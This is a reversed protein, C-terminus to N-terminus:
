VGSSLGHSVVPHRDVSKESVQESVQVSSAYKWIQKSVKDLAQQSEVSLESSVRDVENRGDDTLHIARSYGRSETNLFRGDQQACIWAVHSELRGYARNKLEPYQDRVHVILPEIMESLLAVRGERECERASYLFARSVARDVTLGFACYRVSDRDDRNYGYEWFASNIDERRAFYKDSIDHRIRNGMDASPNPHARQFTASLGMPFNDVESQGTATLAVVWFNGQKEAEVHRGGLHACRNVVYDELKEPPYGVLRPFQTSLCGAVAAPMDDLDTTTHGEKKRRALIDLIAWDTMVDNDLSPVYEPTGFDDDRSTLNYEGMEYVNM